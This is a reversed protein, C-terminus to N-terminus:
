LTFFNLERKGYFRAPDYVGHIKPNYEIPYDGIAMKLPTKFRKERLDFRSQEFQGFKLQALPASNKGRARRSKSLKARRNLQMYDM